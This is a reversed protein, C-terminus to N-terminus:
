ILQPIRALKLPLILIRSQYNKLGQFTKSSVGVM